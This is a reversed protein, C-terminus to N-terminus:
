VTASELASFGRKSAQASSRLLEDYRVGYRNGAAFAPEVLRAPEVENGEKM